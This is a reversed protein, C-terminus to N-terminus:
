SEVGERTWRGIAEGVRVPDGPQLAGDATSRSSPLVVIVTSGMEFRALEEGRAFARPKDPAKGPEVGVVRIRGVNLAGVLVLFFPGHASEFRMACRENLAFVPKRQLTKPRVPHRDGPIWHVDVLECDDIAHVRHYDRPSLYVTIGQGGDLTVDDGLGALLGRVGYLHGKAQVLSGEHVRDIAQIKGDAPSVFVGDDSAVPRAGAVLRRVFFASLSAYGDLPPRAESLDAGTGFAYARYVPKRLFRPVKRDALWGVFHSLKLRFRASM